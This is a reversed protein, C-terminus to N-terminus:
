KDIYHIIIKKEIIPLMFVFLLFLAVFSLLIIISLVIDVRYNLLALAISAFLMIFTIRLRPKSAIFRHSFLMRYKLDVSDISQYEAIRNACHVFVGRILMLETKKRNKEKFENYAELRKNYTGDLAEYIRKTTDCKEYYVLLNSINIILFITNLLFLCFSTIFNTIFANNINLDYLTSNLIYDAVNPIIFLINFFMIIVSYPFITLQKAKATMFLMNKICKDQDECNSKETYNSIETYNHNGKEFGTKSYEDKYIKSLGRFANPKEKEDIDISDYMKLYNLLHPIYDAYIHTIVLLCICLSFIVINIKQTFWLICIIISVTIYINLGFRLEDRSKEICNQRANESLYKISSYIEKKSKKEFFDKETIKEFFHNLIISLIELFIITTIAYPKVVVNTYSFISEINSFFLPFISIGITLLFMTVNILISCVKLINTKKNTM